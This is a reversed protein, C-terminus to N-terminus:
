HNDICIRKGGLRVGTRGTFVFKANGMQCNILNMPSMFNVMIFFISDIHTLTM